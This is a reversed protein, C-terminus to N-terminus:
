DTGGYGGFNFPDIGLIRNNAVCVAEAFTFIGLVGMAWREGAAIFALWALGAMVAAAIVFYLIVNLRRQALTPGEEIFARLLPNRERWRYPRSAITCTQLCDIVLLVALLAVTLLLYISM